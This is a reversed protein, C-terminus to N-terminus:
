EEEIYKEHGEKKLAKAATALTAVEDLKNELFATEIKCMIVFTEGMLRRYDAIAKEKEKADPIMDTIFDPVISIGKLVGEQAKRALAAGKVPDKEKNLAKFSDNLTEMQEGLPTGEDAKLPVMMGAIMMCATFTTLFKMARKNSM